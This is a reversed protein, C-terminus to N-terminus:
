RDVDFDFDFDPLEALSDFDFDGESNWNFGEANGITDGNWVFVDNGEIITDLETKNGEDDVRVLNIHRTKKKSHPQDQPKEMLSFSSLLFICCVFFTTTTLIRKM